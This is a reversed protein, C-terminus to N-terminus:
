AAELAARVAAIADDARSADPGGAQAMDPRGGGGQGGLAASAVRVLDVASFRSTLDDTVGVVVSAKNDEGAGVFVVIGSGLSRKGADALPKLDKPSVGSVAKGLFGVGAITENEAPAGAPSRDGLALKKRAETLEKELKKREDLLAEVRAQVDAPSIKLTAAVSKLRRDQEDLHRRAAEGTLAEIRRVGAAVASDSVVRVLGIDGTARVHTGGCLEVSYPRNAKAGHLGTGMSVVRVEDGYKEGFLAMAGEAIADDVSMLRTTVPGNQVVIENAMREVEELDEPSIPKNHSIDFRLREPGVLSGKQAVHTGLVERLAEHILHTASHNARLRTRRIHDVKLEVAAGTRATGSAVKGLHVFLGDAKKQTDTVEISFGEGSIVGTDGMQGGSEGYFPTQNVVIAVAEGEGASDVTKGDRVLAQILGEAQETEYGLFETAGTKERVAFWVTETAADGSGAWHARAEARQREMANTFGALDVSISRQRLADQTLDLPFGYTDYLKFATEGDLMDGAHMKETAESLLGLGRVLTKRFRTEELKLTETILQEGRVLEPYAQGMERVLAPVLRWMLPDRSGLLQAHRMARRMIRRLVYGRGENSPLVGDAVLFSSSRLHDAIVRFSGVTEADPARGIASSTADILHRFLDTEFVSEVGQLISAMRELGMGTDISPRPLDVREDKTVQEYQMFVLNWFELFRDGDEEPSGPPGGWIHEGRDIFIESCPGCPGTDGMAWFNDSTPIRIIRDDSLGAIKKWFGAAEDDTHYVTVLLKDKDLGFERTILNWALEIAREKFYDGFSFNGLMEFFTLHRATYGVNDLDNHKGGARVSKQATTARSYPRKELGTFVNKFQVMGANTFMLTPDNRPVLPSSAVIEHGEKRFYDLFTSRIENVGSM